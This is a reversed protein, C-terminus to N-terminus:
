NENGEAKPKYIVECAHNQAKLIQVEDRLAKNEICLDEMDQTYIQATMSDIMAKVEASLPNEIDEKEEPKFKALLELYTKMEGLSKPRSLEKFAKFAENRAESYFDDNM